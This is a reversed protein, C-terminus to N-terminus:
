RGKGILSSRPHTLERVRCHFGHKRGEDHSRFCGGESESELVQLAEGKELGKRRAWSGGAQTIFVAGQGQEDTM